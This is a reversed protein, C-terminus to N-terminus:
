QAKSKLPEFYDWALNAFPTDSKSLAVGATPKYVPNTWWPQRGKLIFDAVVQGGQSVTVGVDVIAQAPNTPAKGDFYKELTRPSIFVASHLDKGQGVDTHVVTATLMTGEKDEVLGKNNLLIYYNVTVEDLYKPDKLRPQWEFTTDIELWKQPRTSKKNYSGSATPTDQFEPTVKTIKFETNPAPAQALAGTISVVSVALLLPVFKRLSM